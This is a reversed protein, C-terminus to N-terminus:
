ANAEEDQLTRALMKARAIASERYGRRHQDCRAFHFDKERGLVEGPIMDMLVGPRGCFFCITRQEHPIKPSPRDGTGDLLEVDLELDYFGQKGRVPIPRIKRVNELHFGYGEYWECQAAQVHKPEFPRCAVLECVALAVGAPGRDAPQKSSCIFLPGRYRTPWTRTEITKEGDAILSAWPQKLSLAKARILTM